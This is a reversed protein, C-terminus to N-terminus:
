RTKRTSFGMVHLWQREVAVYCECAAAELGAGNRVEIRGRTYEILGARQLALAAVTVGSRRVGLMQSLFEHTLSITDGPVRDHAMLLWRACRETIAHLRNCAAYQSLAAITLQAYRSVATRLDPEADLASLFDASSMALASDPVQILARQAVSTSGLALPLGTLGERGIFGVEVTSGDLMETVVSVVCGLPFLVGNITADADYIIESRQM